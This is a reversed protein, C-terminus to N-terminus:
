TPSTPANLTLVGTYGQALFDIGPRGAYPSDAGFATVRISIIDPKHKRVQEHDM